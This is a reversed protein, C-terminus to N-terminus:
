ERSVTQRYFELLRVMSRELTFREEFIERSRGGLARATQRDELIREMASALAVSSGPKVLFANRGEEVTERIPDIDSAVIPLGLAMAEIVAGPLGEYFSPLVFVDAAALIEPIDERHGLFLVQDQLGLRNRLTQLECSVDGSRGAVLCVLRPRTSVLMAVAELLHKQGKQHDQRGVNVLVEQDEGLGLRTRASRKRQAGPEGLRVPDRGQNMVTIKKAPVALDRVAADKVANSNAYIHHTLHRATWGDIWRALRFRMARITPDHLRMESYDTNVLRSVVRASTGVAALRGAIDSHFLVTQIVDPREIRILRRLAWVRTPVGQARLIRVDFGRRQLGAQVGEERPRLVVVVPEVQFRVLQPLEEALDREAGGTGLSDIVFLIKLKTM